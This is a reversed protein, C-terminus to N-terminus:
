YGSRWPGNHNRCTTRNQPRPRIIKRAKPTGRAAAARFAQKTHGIRILAVNKPVNYAEAIILATQGHVNKLDFDPSREIIANIIQQHEHSSKAAALMLATNKAGYSQLDLNAGHAILQLAENTRKCIITHMLATKGDDDQIDPDAGHALLLAVQDYSFHRCSRMLATKGYMDKADIDGGKELIAQVLDKKAHNLAIM